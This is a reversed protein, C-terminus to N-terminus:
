SQRSYKGNSSRQLSRRMGLLRTPRGSAGKLQSRHLKQRKLSFGQITLSGFSDSAIQVIVKSTDADSDGTPWCQAFDLRGQIELFGPAM